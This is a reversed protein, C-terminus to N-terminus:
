YYKKLQKGNETLEEFAFDYQNLVEYKTLDPEEEYDDVKKDDDSDAGKKQQQEVKLKIQEDLTEKEIRLDLLEQLKTFPLIRPRSEMKFDNEKKRAPYPDMNYINM